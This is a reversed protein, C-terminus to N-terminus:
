SERERRQEQVIKFEQVLCCSPAFLPSFARLIINFNNNFNSSEGGEMMKTDRRAFSLFKRRWSFSKAPDSSTALLAKEIWCFRLMLLFNKRYNARPSIVLHSHALVFKKMSAYRRQERSRTRGQKWEIKKRRPSVHVICVFTKSLPALKTNEIINNSCHLAMPLEPM